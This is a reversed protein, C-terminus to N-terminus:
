KKIQLQFHVEQCQNKFQKSAGELKCTTQNQLFGTGNVVVIKNDGARVAYITEEVSSVFPMNNYLYILSNSAHQEDSSVTMVVTDTDTDKYIKWLM